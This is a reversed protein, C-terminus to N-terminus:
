FNYFTDAWQNLNIEQGVINSKRGMEILNENSNQITKLMIKKLEEV